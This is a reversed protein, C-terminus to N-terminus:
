VSWENSPNEIRPGRDQLFRRAYQRLRSSRNMASVEESLARITQEQLIVIIGELRAYEAPHLYVHYRSPVLTSYKLPELNKQMNELVAQIVDRAPRRAREPNSNSEKLRM